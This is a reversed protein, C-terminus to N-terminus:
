TREPGDLFYRGNRVDTQDLGNLFNEAQKLTAFRKIVEATKVEGVAYRLRTM